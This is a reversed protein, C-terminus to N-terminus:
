LPNGNGGEHSRELGPILGTDGANDRVNALLNKVVSGSPFGTM